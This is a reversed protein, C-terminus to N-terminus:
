AASGPIVVTRSVCWTITDIFPPDPTPPPPDPAPQPAVAPRVFVATAIGRIEDSRLKADEATSLTVTGIWANDGANCGGVGHIMLPDGTSGRPPDQMLLFRVTVPGLLPGDPVFPGGVTLRQKEPDYTPNDFASHPM